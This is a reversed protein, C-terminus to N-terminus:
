QKLIMEAAKEAIMVIPACTNGSTIVPMVSGDVVRLGKLGRVRLQDDVVAMEDQGMRCTGVPHYCGHANARIYELINDDNIVSAGPLIEEGRYSDFVGQAFLRRQLKVTELLERRDKETQLFNHFINPAQAPDDSQIRVRGRADPKLPYGMSTMGRKTQLYNIGNEHTERKLPFVPFFVLQCNPRRSQDGSTHCFATTMPGNFALLGKRKFFYMLLQKLFRHPMFEDTLTVPQTCEYAVDIGLHEQLNEGVGPLDFVLEIGHEKLLTKPGVGSLQLLKPSHLAGCCLLVEKCARAESTKGGHEYRVGVTRQKEFLIKNVHAGTLLTLNPRKKIPKLFATATSDRRGRKQSVPSACVGQQREGNVDNNSPIGMTNAAKQYMEGLLPQYRVEEVHWEGRHGHYEESGAEYCESRKFYPLVDEYSWGRNGQAVWQDYDERQGRIYMMGNISSTGGLVKGLPQGVLRNKLSPEPASKLRWNFKKHDFLLGLGLPIHIFPTRDAPGAEFVLVRNGPDRSLRNALVCGATGSGIIIYDYETSM